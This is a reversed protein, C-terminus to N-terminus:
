HHILKTMGYYFFLIIFHLLIHSFLRFFILDAHISPKITDCLVIKNVYVCLPKQNWGIKCNRKYKLIFINSFFFFCKLNVRMYTYVFIFIEWKWKNNWICKSYGDWEIKWDRVFVVTRRIWSSCCFLHLCVISSYLEFSFQSDVYILVFVLTGNSIQYQRFFFTTFEIFPLSFICGCLSPHIFFLVNRNEKVRNIVHHEYQFGHYM